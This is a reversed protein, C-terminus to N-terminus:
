LTVRALRLKAQFEVILKETTVPIPHTYSAVWWGEVGWVGVEGVVGSYGVEGVVQRGVVEGMWVWDVVM